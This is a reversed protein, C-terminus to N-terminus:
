LKNYKHPNGESEVESMIRLRPKISARKIHRTEAIKDRDLSSLSDIIKDLLDADNIVKSVSAENMVQKWVEALLDKVPVTEFFAGYVLSIRVQEPNARHTRVFYFCERLTPYNDLQSLPLDYRKVSDRVLAALKTMDKTATPLTSYSAIGAEHSDKLEVLAGDSFTNSGRYGPVFDPYAGSDKCWDVQGYWWQAWTEENSDEPPNYNSLSDGVACLRDRLVSAEYLVIAEPTEWSGIYAYHTFQGAIQDLSAKMPSVKGQHLAYVIHCYCNLIGM